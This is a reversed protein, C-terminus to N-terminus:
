SSANICDRGDAKARYLATDAACLLALATRYQGNIETAVGQSVSVSLTSPLGADSFSLQRM